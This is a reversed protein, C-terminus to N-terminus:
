VGVGVGVGVHSLLACRSGGLRAVPPRKKDLGRSETSVGLSGARAPDDAATPAAIGCGLGMLHCTQAPGRQAIDRKAGGGSSGSPPDISLADRAPADCRGIDPGGNVCGALPTPGCGERLAGDEGSPEAEPAPLKRRDAPGCSGHEGDRPAADGSSRGQWAPEAASVPAGCDAPSREFGPTGHEPQHAHGRAAAGILVVLLLSLASAPSAGEATM